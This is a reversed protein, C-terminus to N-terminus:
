GCHVVDTLYWGPGNAPAVTFVAEGPPFGEPNPYTTPSTSPAIDHSFYCTYDGAPNQTCSKFQLNGMLAAMANMQARGAPNTVYDLERVNNSNWASALYTMATDPTEFHPAGSSSCVRNVPITNATGPTSPLLCPATTTTTSAVVTAAPEPSVTTTSPPPSNTAVRNVGVGCGATLALLLLIAAGSGRGLRPDERRGLTKARKVM